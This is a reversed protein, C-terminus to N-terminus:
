AKHQSAEQSQLLAEAFTAVRARDATSLRDLIHALRDRDKQFDEAILSSPPVGLAEAIRTLLHNNVNKKGREVNSLHPISVGVKAAVEELTYGRDERIQRINLTLGMDVHIGEGASFTGNGFPFYTSARKNDM